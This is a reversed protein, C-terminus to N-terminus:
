STTGLYAEIVAPDHRVQSPQGDALKTGFDLVVVRDALNMVFDMDHEVLLIGVGDDRLQRLLDALAQREAHRLGAAPEDLLLAVPDLCLARAIEVIRQQGLALTRAPRDAEDALGVRRLQRAAEALLTAEERRDVRLLAVLAGARGRLHAGIAVNEIVSMGTVLRVHQFSRAIGLRAALPADVGSVPQGRFLVQGGAPRDVGTLLNFTTSKGAGNPGILAVIEGAALAFSVDNVAVLGGFTRRLRVAELVPEGREPLTRSTLSGIQGIPLGHRSGARVLRPWLGDPALQLLIVLLAGFVITQFSGQAGILLPLVTQLRDNLITVLAAGLLAGPIHAAGGIVAMLLYEIGPELGFPTPNVARQLGAYLWGALGALGAAFLFAVMRARGPRVGFSAAAITGGRLARIARGSRSDLLNRTLLAALAVGIWVLAFYRRSDRFDFELLQPAPLGSLGDNRGTFDLNGFLYSLSASWAITALALYHGSLRLTAAGIVLAALLSTAIAAPLGLWPSLGAGTLLASAYAGFGMFSAQGFSTMGAVGTLVVLGLVVIASIGITNLLNVWFLPLGPLWPVCLWLALGGIGYLSRRTM